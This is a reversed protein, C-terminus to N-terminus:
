KLERLKKMMIQVGVAQYYADSLANHLANKGEAPRPDQPALKFLTRSDREQFYKWPLEYGYQDFLTKLITMDFGYGQGWVESIFIPGQNHDESYLVSFWEIIKEIAEKTPVRGEPGMADEIIKPDQRGWWNITDQSITRGMKRQDFPDFKIHIGDFPEDLNKPNFKVLGASLVVSNAGTDLTELDIAVNYEKM